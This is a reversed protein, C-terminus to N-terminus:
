KMPGDSAGCTTLRYPLAMDPGFRDFLTERGHRRVLGCKACAIATLGEPPKAVIYAESHPMVHFKYWAGVSFLGLPNLSGPQHGFLDVDPARRMQEHFAVASMSRDDRSLARVFQEGLAIQVPLANPLPDNTRHTLEM